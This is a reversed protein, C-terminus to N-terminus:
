PHPMADETPQTLLRRLEGPEVPSRIIVCTGVHISADSVLHAGLVVHSAVGSSLWGGAVVAAPETGDGPCMSLTLSPGRFRQRICTLGTLASPGAGAFRLPSVRGRAATRAVARMTILTAFESIVIVGVNDRATKLEPACGSVAQDVAAHVMWAVPDAFFSPQNHAFHAPDPHRVTGYGIIAGTM